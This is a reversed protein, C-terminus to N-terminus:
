RNPLKAIPDKDGLQGNGLLQEMIGWHEWEARVKAQRDSLDDKPSLRVASIPSGSSIPRIPQTAIEFPARVERTHAEGAPDLLVWGAVFAATRKGPPVDKLRDLLYDLWIQDAVDEPFVGNWRRAQVGPEGGLADIELGADDGFVWPFDASHYHYAKALANEIATAGNEPPPPALEPLDALTFVEFGYARFVPTFLQTKWANRTAHLIHM